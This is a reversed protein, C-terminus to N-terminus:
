GSCGQRVAVLPNSFAIITQWVAVAVFFHEKKINKQEIISLQKFHSKYSNTEKLRSDHTTLRQTTLELKM